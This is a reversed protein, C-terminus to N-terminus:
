FTPIEFIKALNIFILLTPPKPNLFDFYFANKIQINSIKM